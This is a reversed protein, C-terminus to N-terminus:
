GAMSAPEAAPDRRLMVVKLERRMGADLTDPWWSARHSRGTGDRWCAFALPGRWGFRLDVIPAGDCTAAARGPPVLLLRPPMARQRRASVVGWAGAALALLEVEAPGLLEEDLQVAEPGPDDVLRQALLQRGDPSEGM